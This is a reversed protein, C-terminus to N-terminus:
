LRSGARLGGFGPPNQDPQAQEPPPAESPQEDSPSQPASPPPTPTTPTFQGGPPAPRPAPPEGRLVTVKAEPLKFMYGAVKEQIQEAQRRAEEIAEQETESQEASADQDIQKPTETSEPAEASGSTPPQFASTIRAWAGDQEPDVDYMEITITLGDMSRFTATVPEVGSIDIEGEAAVDDMGLYSLGSAVKQASDDGPPTYGEPTQVFEFADREGEQRRVLLQGDPRDITVSQMRARALRLIQVNIWRIPDAPMDLQGSVIWTREEQGRRAYAYSKPARYLQDGLSVSAVTQGQADSLTVRLAGGDQDPDGLGLESYRAPDSTKPEFIELDTMGLLASRIKDARAPYGDKNVVRWSDASRELRVRNEADRVTITVVDNVRQELDPFLLQREMDAPQYRSNYALFAAVLAGAAVIITIVLTRTSM